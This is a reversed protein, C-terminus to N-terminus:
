IYFYDSRSKIRYMVGYRTLGLAKAATRPSDYIVGECSVAKRRDKGIKYRVEDNWVKGTNWPLHGKKSDSIKQKSEVTHQKGYMSNGNGVRQKKWLQRTEDTPIQLGTKGKNWPVCIGDCANKLEEISIPNNIFWEKLQVLFPDDPNYYISM